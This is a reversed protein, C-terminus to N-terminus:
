SRSYSECSPKSLRLGRRSLTLAPGLGPLVGIATGLTVGVLCWALHSPTLAVQFGHALASWVEM